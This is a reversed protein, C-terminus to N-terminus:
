GPPKTTHNAGRTGDIVEADTGFGGAYALRDLFPSTYTRQIIKLAEPDDESLRTLDTGMVRFVDNEHRIYVITPRAM